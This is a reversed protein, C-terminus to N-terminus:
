EDLDKPGSAFAPRDDDLEEYLKNNNQNNRLNDNKMNNNNNMNNNKMNNINNGTNLKDM